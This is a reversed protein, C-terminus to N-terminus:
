SDAPRFTPESRPHLGPRPVSHLLHHCLVIRLPRVTPLPFSVIFTWRWYVRKQTEVGIDLGGGVVTDVGGDFFRVCGVSRNRWCRNPGFRPCHRTMLPLVQDRAKGHQERRQCNNKPHRTSLVPRFIRSQVSHSSARLKLHHQLLLRASMARCTM